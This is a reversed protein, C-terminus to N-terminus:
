GPLPRTRQRPYRRTPLSRIPNSAGQSLQRDTLYVRGQAVAPGSYGGGVPTRWRIPPGAAPFKQVIGTERWVSDRQPGLWQPWDDALLLNACLLPLALAVLRLSIRRISNMPPLTVCMAVPPWISQSSDTYFHNLVLRTRKANPLRQPAHAQARPFSSPLTRAAFINQHQRRSTTTIPRRDSACNPALCHLPVAGGTGLHGTRQCIPPHLFAHNTNRLSQSNKRHLAHLQSERREDGWEHGALSLSRLM